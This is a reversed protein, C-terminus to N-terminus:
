RAFGCGLDDAVELLGAIEALAPVPAAVAVLHVLLERETVGLVAVV